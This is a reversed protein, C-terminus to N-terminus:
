VGISFFFFSLLTHSPQTHTRSLTRKRCLSKLIPLCGLEVAGMNLVAETLQDIMRFLSPPGGSVGGGLHPPWRTQLGPETTRNPLLPWLSGNLGLGRKGPSGDALALSCPPAGVGWSCLLSSKGKEENGAWPGEM